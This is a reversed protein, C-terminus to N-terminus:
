FRPATLQECGRSECLSSILEPCWSFGTRWHLLGCVAAAADEGPALSHVAVGKVAVAWGFTGLLDALSLAM